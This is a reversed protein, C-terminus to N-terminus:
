AEAAAPRRGRRKTQRGGLKEAEETTMDLERQGKRLDAFKIVVHAGSGDPIETGSVDSVMVTKRAM